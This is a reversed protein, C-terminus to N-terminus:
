GHIRGRRRSSSSLTRGRSDVTRTASSPRNIPNSRRRTTRTAKPSRIDKIGLGADDLAMLAAKAGLEPVSTDPFRGFKIMDTGLIYVDSM